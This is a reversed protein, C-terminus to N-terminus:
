GRRRFLNLGVEDTRIQDVRRERVAQQKERTELALQYRKLEQYASTVHVHAESAQRTVEALSTDLRQRRTRAVTLFAAYLRAGEESERAVDAERRLDADLAAIQRRFDDALTELSALQRRAEDLKFQSLRILGPLGKV